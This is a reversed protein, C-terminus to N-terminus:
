HLYYASISTQQGTGFFIKAGVILLFPLLVGLVGVITRLTYSSFDIPQKNDPKDNM